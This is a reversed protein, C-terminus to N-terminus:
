CPFMETSSSMACRTTVSFSVVSLACLQMVGSVQAMTRAGGMKAIGPMVGRAARWIM